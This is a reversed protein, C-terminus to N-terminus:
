AFLKKQAEDLYLSNIAPFKQTVFVRVFRVFERRQDANAIWKASELMDLVQFKESCAKLFRKGEKLRQSKLLM